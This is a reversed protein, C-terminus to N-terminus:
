KLPCIRDGELVYGYQELCKNCYKYVCRYNNRDSVVKFMYEIDKPISDIEILYMDMYVNHTSCKEMPKFM